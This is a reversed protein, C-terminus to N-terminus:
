VLMARGATEPAVGPHWGAIWAMGLCVSGILASSIPGIIGIWFESKADRPETEISAVGGLAFLTISRTSIGRSRAVLAHSMEHALLSAFFLIATFLSIAWIVRQGWHSRTATFQEVLSMVILLAILLWSYNLGVEIGFIRGLRIDPKM